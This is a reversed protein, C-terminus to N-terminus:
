AQARDKNASAAASQAGAAETRLPLHKLRARQVVNDRVNVIEEVVYDGLRCGLGLQPM